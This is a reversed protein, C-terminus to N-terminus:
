ISMNSCLSFLHVEKKSFTQKGSTKLLLNKLFFHWMNIFIIYITNYVDYTVNANKTDVFLIFKGTPSSVPCGSDLMNLNNDVSLDVEM